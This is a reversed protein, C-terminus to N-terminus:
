RHLKLEKAKCLNPFYLVFYCFKEFDSEKPTISTGCM